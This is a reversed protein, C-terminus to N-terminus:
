ITDYTQKHLETTKTISGHEKTDKNHITAHNDSQRKSTTTCNISGTALPESKCAVDFGGLSVTKRNPAGTTRNLTTSLSLSCAAVPTNGIVDDRRTPSAAAPSESASPCAKSGNTVRLNTPKATNSSSKNEAQRQKGVIHHKRRIHPAVQIRM